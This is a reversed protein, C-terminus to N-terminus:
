ARGARLCTIWFGKAKEPYSPFRCPFLNRTCVASRDKRSIVPADRARTFDWYPRLWVSRSALTVVSEM